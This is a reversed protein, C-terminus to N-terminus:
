KVGKRFEAVAERLGAWALATLGAFTMLWLVAIWGAPFASSLKKEGPIVKFWDVSAYATGTIGPGELGPGAGERIYLLGPAGGGNGPLGAIELWAPGEAFGDFAFRKRVTSGPSLQNLRHTQRNSGQVLKVEVGGLCGEAKCGFFLGLMFTEGALGPPIQLPQKFVAGESIPGTLTEKAWPHSQYLLETKERVIALTCVAIMGIGVVLAVPLSFVIRSLKDM